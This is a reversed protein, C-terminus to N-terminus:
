GLGLALLQETGVLEQPLRAGRDLWGQARARLDGPLWRLVEDEVVIAPGCPLSVGEARELLLAYWRTAPVLRVGDSPAFRTAARWPITLGERDLDGFYEAVETKWSRCHEHLFAVAERGFGGGAGYVVASYEGVRENWRCFSWWTHHNELVLCPRGNTTSSFLDSSCM